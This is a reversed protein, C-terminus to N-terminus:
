DPVTSSHEAALESVEIAPFTMPNISGSGRLEPWIRLAGRAAAAHAETDLKEQHEV